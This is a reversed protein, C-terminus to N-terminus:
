DYCAFVESEIKQLEMTPKRLSEWFRPYKEFSEFYNEVNSIDGSAEIMKKFAESAKDLYLETFVKSKETSNQISDYATWFNAIDSTEIVVNKSSQGSCSCLIFTAFIALFTKM